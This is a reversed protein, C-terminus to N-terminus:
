EDKCKKSREAMYTRIAKRIVQSISEDDEYSITNLEELERDSVRINLRGTKRERRRDYINKNEM